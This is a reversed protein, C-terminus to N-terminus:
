SFRNQISGALLSKGAELIKESSLDIMCRFHGRPCKKTGHLSCPRCDLGDHGVVVSNKSYPAFGFEPVTPGFIAVVPTGVAAAIHAPASDNCFIIKAKSIIAASLLLDTQGTLDLPKHSVKSSLALAMDKDDAGGVLVAPLEFRDHILNILHDYHAYRKTAWVSGPAVVAFGSAIGNRHLIEDAQRSIQPNIFIRPKFRINPDDEGILDLCRLVEHKDRDYKVRSTYLLRAASNDFGIRIPIKAMRAIIASRFHRQIIIAEDHGMLLSAIKRIGSIGKDARYKDYVIINDVYPNDRLICASEPRVVASLLSNPRNVKIAEFVPTALIVDGPFATQIVAIRTM